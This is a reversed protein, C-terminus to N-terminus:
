IRLGRNLFDIKTVVWSTCHKPFSVVYVVKFFLGCRERKGVGFTMLQFRLVQIIIFIGLYLNWGDLEPEKIFNKLTVSRGCLQYFSLQVLKLLKSVLYAPFFCLYFTTVSYETISINIDNYDPFISAWHYAIFM